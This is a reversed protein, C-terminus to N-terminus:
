QSSVLSETNVTSSHATFAMKSTELMVCASFQQRHTYLRFYFGCKLADVSVLANDSCNYDVVFAFGDTAAAVYTGTM